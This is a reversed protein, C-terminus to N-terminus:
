TDYFATWGLVITIVASLVSLIFMVVIILPHNKLSEALKKM